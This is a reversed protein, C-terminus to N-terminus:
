EDGRLENNAPVVRQYDGTGFHEVILLPYSEYNVNYDTATIRANHKRLLPELEAIFADVKDRNDTAEEDNPLVM